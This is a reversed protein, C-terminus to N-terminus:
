GFVQQVMQIDSNLYPAEREPHWGVAMVPYDEHRFAEVTGDEARALAELGKPLELMAFNHYSNVSKRSIVGTVAHRTGAHGEIPVINGGFYDALFQMGRCIGFIPVGHSVAWEVLLREARDREPAEGGFKTLSNGGTFFIGDPCLKEAIEIVLKPVNSVPVPCYGCVSLFSPIRQDACDRREGYEKVIEVRQTYLILKM